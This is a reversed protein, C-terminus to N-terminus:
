NGEKVVRVKIGPRYKEIFENRHPALSCPWEGKHQAQIIAKETTTTPNKYGALCKDDVFIKCTKCYEM